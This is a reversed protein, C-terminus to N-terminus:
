VMGEWPYRPTDALQEDTYLIRALVLSALDRDDTWGVEGAYEFGETLQDVGYGAESLIRAVDGGMADVRVSPSMCILRGWDGENAIEWQGNTKGVVQGADEEYALESARRIANFLKM